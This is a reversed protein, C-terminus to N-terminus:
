RSSGFSPRLGLYQAYHNYNRLATMVAAQGNPNMSSVIRRVDLESPKTTFNSQLPNLAQYREKVYKEAEKRDRGEQMTVLVAEVYADRFGVADNSYASTLMRGILPKAPHPASSSKWGGARVDVPPSVTRAASRLYSNVNMRAIEKAEAEFLPGGTAVTFTHNLIDAIQLFGSGGLAQGLPRAVSAYDARFGQRAWTTVADMVGHLSNLFFIRSDFAMPRATDINVAYDLAEGALGFIGARGLKQVSAKVNEWTLGDTAKIAQINPKKGVIDEDFWERLMAMALGVPVIALYALMGQRFAKLSIDGNGSTMAKQMDNTASLAWGVMPAMLSGGPSTLMSPTRTVMSSELLTESSGLLAQYQRQKETWLPANPDARRRAIYDRAAAEIDMGWDNLRNEYYDFAKEAYGLDKHTFQFDPDAEDMPHSEFYEVAKGLLVDMRKWVSKVTAFHAIQSAQTFLGLPFKLTPYAFQSDERRRAIGTGIVARADRSLRRAARRAEIWARRVLGRGESSEEFLDEHSVENIKDALSIYADPDVLGLKRYLKNYESETGIQTSVAQAISGFLGESFGGINLATTIAAEKTLGLHRLPQVSLSVQDSLATGPGQVTLGAATGILEVWFRFEIPFDLLSRVMGNFSKDAEQLKALNADANELRRLHGAGGMAEAAVELLSRLKRSNVGPNKAAIDDVLKTYTNALQTLDNQASLLHGRIESLGRGGGAQFAQARVMLRLSQADMPQYELWGSPLEEMVRADMMVRRPAPIGHMNAEAKDAFLGHALNYFNQFTELTEGVFEEITMREPTTPAELRYLEEIFGLIDGQPVKNYAEALNARKALLKVEASSPQYFVPRGPQLVLEGVFDRWVAPDDFRTKLNASLAARDSAYADEMRAANMTPGAAGSWTKLMSNFMAMAEGTVRRSVHSLPSGLADRLFGVDEVKLGMARASSAIFASSAETNKIYSTFASWFQNDAALRSTAPTASFYNRLASTVSQRFAEDSVATARLDQRNAIYHLAQNYLRRCNHLTLRGGMVRKYEKMVDAESRSWRAGLAHVDTAGYKVFSDIKAIAQAAARASPHGTQNLRDTIAGIMRTVHNIQNAHYFTSCVLTELKEKNSALARDAASWASKPVFELRAKMKAIDSYIEKETTGNARLQLTRKAWSDSPDSPNQPVAYEAGDVMDVGIPEANVLVSLQAMRNQIIAQTDRYFEVFSQKQQIERLLAANDNKAKELADIIRVGLKSAAVHQRIAARADAFSTATNALAMKIANNLLTGGNAAVLKRAQLLSIIYGHSRGFATLVALEARREISSETLHSLAPNSVAAALIKARVDAASDNSWDIADLDAVAELTASFRAAGAGGGWNNYLRNIAVSYERSSTDTIEGDIAKITQAIQGLKRSKNMLSRIDARLEAFLDGIAEKSQSVILATQDRKLTLDVVRNVSRSVRNLISMPNSPSLQWAFDNAQKTRKSELEQLHTYAAWSARKQAIDTSLNAISAGIPAMPKGSRTLGENIIARLAHPSDIPVMVQNAHYQDPTIGSSNGGVNDWHDYQADLVTIVENLAAVKITAEATDDRAEQSIDMSKSSALQPDRYRINSNYRAAAVSTELAERYVMSDTIPDYYELSEGEGNVPAFGDAHMGGTWKPGGLWAPFSIFESDGSVFSIVRNVFYKEILEYNVADKGFAAKQFAIAVRYFADRMFRVMSDWLGRAQGPQFGADTLRRAVSESLRELNTVVDSESQTLMESVRPSWDGIGLSENSMKDIVAHLQDQMGPSEMESVADAAEHFAALVSARSPRQSDAVFLVISRGAPTTVGGGDLVGAEIEQRVETFSWGNADVGSAIDNLIIRNDTSESRGAEPNVTAAQRKRSRPRRGTQDGAQPVGGSTSTPNGQRDTSAAGAGTKGEAQERGLSFYKGSEQIFLKAYEARNNSHLRSTDQVYQIARHAASETSRGASEGIAMLKSMVHVFETDRSLRKINSEIEHPKLKLKAIADFVAGGDDLSLREGEARMAISAPDENTIQKPPEVVEAMAADQKARLKDTLYQLEDRNIKQNFKLIPESRKISGVISLNNAALYAEADVGKGNPGVIKPARTDFITAIEGGDGDARQLVVLKRSLGYTGKGQKAASADTVAREIDSSRDWAPAAKKGKGTEGLAAQSAGGEGEANAFAAAALISDMTVAPRIVSDAKVRPAPTPAVEESAVPKIKPISPPAPEPVPAVQDVARKGKRNKVGFGLSELERALDEEESSTAAAVRQASQPAVKSVPKAAPRAAESVPPAEVTAAEAARQAPAQTEAPQQIIPTAQPEQAAQQEPPIALGPPKPNDAADLAKAAAAVEDIKDLIKKADSQETSARLEAIRKSVEELNLNAQTFDAPQAENTDTYLSAIERLDSQTAGGPLPPAKAEDKKPTVAHQLKAGLARGLAHSFISAIAGVAGGTGAAETLGEMVRRDKDYLNQAVYNQAMQSVLEQIAEEGTEKTTEWLFRAPNIGLPKAIRNIWHAVPVAETLGVLNGLLATTQATEEDAGHSKADQYWEVSTAASGLGAASLWAPVKLAKGAVGGGIFGIASGLGAPIKTAMWSQQLQENNAPLISETGKRIWQGLKYLARDESKTPDGDQDSGIFDASGFRRALNAAGIAISEPISAVVGAVGRGFSGAAQTIYDGVTPDPPPIPTDVEPPPPPQQSRIREADAELKAREANLEAVTPTGPMYGAGHDLLFKEDEETM